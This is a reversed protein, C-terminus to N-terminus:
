ASIDPVPKYNTSRLKNESTLNKIISNGFDKSGEIERFTNTDVFYVQVGNELQAQLGSEYEEEKLPKVSVKSTWESKTGKTEDNEFTDSRLFYVSGGKDVNEYRGRDSIIHIHVNGFRIKKTWTDNSRVIFKTAEVKDTTAFVVPGEDKDRISIAKPKLLNIHRNCSAHYLIDPKNNSM